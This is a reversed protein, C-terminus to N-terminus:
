ARPLAAVTHAMGAASEAWSPWAVTAAASPPSALAQRLAAALEAATPATFYQAQEGMVERFVPIDRAIVPLGRRAAEILPLGYGEGWSAALLLTSARYIADLEADGADDIWFLRQGRQAHSEASTRFTEMLWGFKGVILLNVDVGANWLAECAELAQDYGKRPEITGVMLLTPRTQTATALPQRLNATGQGLLADVGLPSASIVPVAGFQYDLAQAALWRRLDSATARSVCVLQDAICAIRQLWDEFRGRAYPHFMDPLAMPLLDHVLFHLSAGRRHWDRLQPEAQAITDMAWDLGVFSDGAAIEAAEDPLVLGTLGLLDLTYGRAYRYRGGSFRVPEIRVGAPPTKLWHLLTNRVVRQVGTRIDQAAISSVDVLWRRMPGPARAAVITAAIAALDHENPKGDIAAIADFLQAERALPHTAYAHAVREACITAAGDAPLDAIPPLAIASAQDRLQQAIAPDTCLVALSHKLLPILRPDTAQTGGNHMALLAAYGGAEYAAQLVAAAPAATVQQLKEQTLVVGPHMQMLPELQAATDAEALYLLQQTDSGAPLSAPTVVEAALEDLWGPLPTDGARVCTIRAPTAPASTAARPTRRQMCDQIADLVRGAVTNWNFQAARVLAYQRLEAAFAPNGLVAAMRETISDVRTPDFMADDRGIVEPLSAAHSAIVPAGCAMAELPPLGFGELLSPFVFLACEAYLRILEQDPAFGTYIITDAPLMAKRAADDLRAKEDDSARGVIVLQHSRLLTEPLGAFAEILAAVNKREDFGGSYLVFPRVIGHRRYLAESAAPDPAPARFSEDVAAGVTVVREPALQLREIADQRVWETSALLLDCRRLLQLSQEYWERVRPHGLYADPNHLPIVDYLTAISAVGAPPADPLVADDNYGELLSSYWVADADLNEIAHRMTCAAAQRLWTNGGPQARIGEPMDLMIRREPLAHKGLTAILTDAPAGFRANFLLRIDHAGARTLFARTLALTHRGIGRHRSQSQAGQLDLLLKM